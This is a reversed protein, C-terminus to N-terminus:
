TSQQSRHLFPKPVFANLLKSIHSRLMLPSFLTVHILHILARVGAIDGEATSVTDIVATTHGDAEDRVMKM